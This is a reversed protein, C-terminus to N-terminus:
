PKGSSKDLTRAFLTELEPNIRGIADVVQKAWDFYTNCREEDWEIPPDEGIERVNSIKDALKILKAGGSMGPAHMIQLERQVSRLQTKDDTVEGVISDIASGFERLVEDRTTKTDEVTDHLLAAALVTPDNVGGVDAILAAVEICHGVYPRGSKGKRKQERHKHAAFEAARLVLAVDSIPAEKNFTSVAGCSIREWGESM